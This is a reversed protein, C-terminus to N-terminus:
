LSGLSADHHRLPRTNRGSDKRKEWGRVVVWGPMSAWIALQGGSIAPVEVSDQRGQRPM